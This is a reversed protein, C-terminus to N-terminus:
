SNLLHINRERTSFFARGRNIRVNEGAFSAFAGDVPLFASKVNERQTFPFVYVQLILGIVDCISYSTM